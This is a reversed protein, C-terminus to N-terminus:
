PQKRLRVLRAAMAVAIRHLGANFFRRLTYGRAISIATYICSILVNQGLTPHFGFRPFVLQNAIVSIVLGVATNLLAECLSELRTQNV